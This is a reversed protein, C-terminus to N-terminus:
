AETLPWLSHKGYLLPLCTQLSPFLQPPGSEQLLLLLILLAIALPGESQPGGLRDGAYQFASVNSQWCLDM